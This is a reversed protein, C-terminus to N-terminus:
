TATDASLTLYFFLEHSYMMDFVDLIRRLIAQFEHLVVYFDICVSKSRTESM